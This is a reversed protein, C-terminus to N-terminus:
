SIKIFLLEEKNDSVHVLKYGHELLAKLMNQLREEGDEYFRNHVEVCIQEIQLEKDLFDPVAFFETGEIDIKLLDIYSHNLKNMLKDLTNMEVEIIDNEDVTPGLYESGSVYDKNKPLFFKTYGNKDSLGVPYFKFYSFVSKDYNEVYKISKPTPDFAYIKCLAYKEALHESFSLDEGIGFSYVIIEKKNELLETCVTFGYGKDGFFETKVNIDKSKELM